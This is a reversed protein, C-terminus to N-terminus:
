QLSYVSTLTTHYHTNVCIFSDGYSKLKLGMDLNRKRQVWALSTSIFPGLQLIECKYKEETIQSPPFTDSPQWAFVNRNDLGPGFELNLCLLYILDLNDLGSMFLVCQVPATLIRWGVWFAYSIRPGHIFITDLFIIEWKLDSAQRCIRMNSQLNNKNQAQQTM